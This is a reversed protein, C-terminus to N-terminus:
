QFGSFTLALLSMSRIALKRKRPIYSWALEKYGNALRQGSEHSIPVAMSGTGTVPNAAFKEGIGKLAGGGQPLSVKPPSVFYGQETADTATAEGTSQEGSSIAPYQM